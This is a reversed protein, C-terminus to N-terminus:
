PDDIGDEKKTLFEELKGAKTRSRGLQPPVTAGSSKENASLPPLM